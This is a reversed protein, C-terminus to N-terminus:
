CQRTKARLTHESPSRESLRDKLNLFRVEVVWYSLEAIALTVIVNIPFRQLAGWHANPNAVFLQQWLYLGYSIRGLHRLIPNSFILSLLPTRCLILQGLVVACLLTQVTLYAAPFIRVAALTWVVLAVWVMAPNIATVM